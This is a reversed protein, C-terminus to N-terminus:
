AYLLASGTPLFRRGRTRSMFMAHFFTFYSQLTSSVVDPQEMEHEPEPEPEPHRDAGKQCRSVFFADRPHRGLQIRPLPAPSPARLTVRAPRTRPSAAAVTVPAAWCWSACLSAMHPVTCSRTSKGNRGQLQSPAPISILFDSYALGPTSL